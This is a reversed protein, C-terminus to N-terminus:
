LTQWSSWSTQNTCYRSKTGNTGIGLQGMYRTKSSGIITIMVGYGVGLHSYVDSIILSNYGFADIYSMPSDDAPLANYPVFHANLNGLVKGVLNNNLKSVM